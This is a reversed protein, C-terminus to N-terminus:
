SSELSAGAAEGILARVQMAIAGFPATSTM